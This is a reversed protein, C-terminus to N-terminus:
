EARYHDIHLSLTTGTRYRRALFGECRIATGAPLKALAEATRGFAVAAIELEVKRQGGAEDQMSAHHLTLSLAPIGAPTHRLEDRAVITVAVELRNRRHDTESM